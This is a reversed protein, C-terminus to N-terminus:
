PIALGEHRALRELASEFLTRSAGAVQQLYAHLEADAADRNVCGASYAEFSALQMLLEAVHRPCECALTPPLGAIATLVADDYRRAPLGVQPPVATPVDQPAPERSPASLDAEVSMLWHGLAEDDAPERLTVVGTDAMARITASGAFRYVVVVQRAGCAQRAAQLEPPVEPRLEPAHWLLLDAGRGVPAWAAEALSEFVAVRQLAHALLRGVAPRQLRTALAPGVVALRMGRGARGIEPARGRHAGSAKDVAALSSQRAVTQLQASDLSAISGIAHGQGTLQRLLLVRQVDAPSYLRHGSFTTAPQVAQYRQEWIRLTAVPMNAMRAVAGSRFGPGSTVPLVAQQAPNRAKM